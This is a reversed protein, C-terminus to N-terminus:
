LTKLVEILEPQPHVDSKDPRVSTHSFIGNEGRFARPTLDWIDDFYTKDIDYTQCYYRLLGHITELQQDTYSEYYKFGRYPQEYETINKTKLSSGYVISEGKENVPGLSDLEIAISHQNLWKNSKSNSYQKLISFKIGLHHGWNSSHFL